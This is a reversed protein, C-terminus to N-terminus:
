FIFRATLRMSTPDQRKLVEGFLDTDQQVYSIPQDNNTVNFIDLKLGVTYRESFTFSKEVSIDWYYVEPLTRSGRGEGFGEYGYYPVDTRKSWHYGSNWEFSSGITFGYPAKYFGRLKIQHDVSYPLYGYWGEDGDAPGGLGAYGDDGPVHDGFTGVYNGSGWSSQFGGREFQGPNTGKAESNVYSLYFLTKDTPQGNFEFEYSKYDRKKEEWNTIQWFETGDDLLYAVDEILDRTHSEVYRVKVAYREMLKRNYELLFEDKYYPKLDPDYFLPNSEGSQEKEYNDVGINGNKDGWNNGDHLADYQEEETLNNWDEGTPGNWKYLRYAHPDQTNGWSALGTGSIDFFRGVGIKAINKSDSTIDWTATIRPSFTDLASFYFLTQKDNNMVDQADMRFGLMLTLNEMPSYTDQLFFNFGNSENEVTSDRHEYYDRPQSGGADNGEFIFRTGGDFGDGVYIDEAEGNYNLSRGSNTWYYGIGAKFEHSGALETYQTMSLLVDQRERINTDTNDNNGYIIGTDVNKYEAPGADGLVGESSLDRDIMGAKFELVTSDTLISKYNFRIRLQDSVNAYRAEPKRLEDVGQNGLESDYITGSLSFLNNPNLQYSFKLFFNNFTTDADGGPLTDIVDGTDEDVLIKDDVTETMDRREYSTFFWLKDKIIPGGINLYPRNDTYERQTSWLGDGEDQALVDSDYQWAVEGSFNNGGSKTVVNVIGGLAMGYEPNFGDTIVQIEEIASFNLPTGTGRTAPDRVSLGDILYNNGYEGEGRVSPLANSNTGDVTNFRVGTIGPDFKTIDQFSRGSPLSELQKTDIYTAVNATKTDVLPVIDAVVVIEEKISEALELTADVSTGVGLKVTIKEMKLSRYGALEFSVTYTGVPLIPLRFRGNQDSTANRSGILSTSTATITVGPLSQGTKDLVKGEINGTEAAYVPMAFFCAVIICVFLSFLYRKNGM